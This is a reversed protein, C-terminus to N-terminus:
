RLIDRSKQVPTWTTRSGLSATSASKLAQMQARRLEEDIRWMGKVFADVGLSGTNTPDCESWIDKLKAKELRSRRWILKVIKGELREDPGVAQDVEYLSGGAQQVGEEPKPSLLLSSNGAKKKKDKDLQKQARRRQIVTANFVAQYRKRAASPVPTPRKTKFLTPNPAAFTTTSQISSRDSASSRSPPPPPVRRPVYATPLSTLSPSQRLSPSNPTTTSIRQPRPPPSKVTPRSASAPVTSSPRKPLQPPVQSRRAMAKEWDMTINHETTPSAISSASVDEYSGTLSNSDPDSPNNSAHDMPFTAIFNSVSGPHSHFSSISSAPAHAKPRSDSTLPPYTHVPDVALSDNRNPPYLFASKPPNSSTSNLSSTSPVSKLSTYSPKRPSSPTGKAIKCLRSFYFSCSAQAKAKTESSLRFQYSSSQLIKLFLRLHVPHSHTHFPRFLPVQIPIPIPILVPTPTSHTTHTMPPDSDPTAPSTGDDVVWDKLDILSAPSQPPSVSLSQPSKPGNALSEFASIRSQITASPM